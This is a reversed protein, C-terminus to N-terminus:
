LLRGIKLETYSGGRKQMQRRNEKLREKEKPM